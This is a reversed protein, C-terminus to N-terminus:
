KSIGGGSSKAAAFRHSVLGTFGSVAVIGRSKWGGVTPYIDFTINLHKIHADEGVM